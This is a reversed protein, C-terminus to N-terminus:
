RRGIQARPSTSDAASTTPALHTPARYWRRSPSSRSRAPGASSNGSVEVRSGAVAARLHQAAIHHTVAHEAVTLTPAVALYAALELAAGLAAAHLTGSPTVALGRVPLRVGRTPDGPDLFEVGLAHPLAVASAAEARAVLAHGSLIERM